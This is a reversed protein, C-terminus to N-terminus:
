KQPPFYEVLRELTCIADVISDVAESAKKYISKTEDSHLGGSHECMEIPMLGDQLSEQGEALKDVIAQMGAFGFDFDEICIQYQVEVLIYPEINQNGVQEVLVLMDKLPFKLGKGKSSGDEGGCIYLTGDPAEWIHSNWLGGDAGHVCPVRLMMHEHNANAFAIIEEKTTEQVRGEAMEFVAQMNNCYDKYQELNTEM